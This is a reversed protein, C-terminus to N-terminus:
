DDLHTVAFAFVSEGEHTFHFATCRFRIAGHDRTLAKLPVGAVPRPDREMIEVREEMAARSDPHLSDLAAMGQMESADSYGLLDCTAPNLYTVARRAVCMVPLPLADVAVSCIGAAARDNPLSTENHGTAVDPVGDPIAVVLAYPQSDFAFPLATVNLRIERGTATVLKVPLERFRQGMSHLMERRREGAERADAHVFDRIPRGALAESEDIELTRRAAANMRVICDREHILAPFPLAEFLADEFVSFPGTSGTM